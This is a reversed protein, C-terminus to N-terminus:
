EPKSPDPNPKDAPQKKPDAAGAAKDNKTATAAVAGALAIITLFVRM